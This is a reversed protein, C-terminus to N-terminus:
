LINGDNVHHPLNKAADTGGNTGGQGTTAAGKSKKDSVPPPNTDGGTAGIVTTGSVSVVVDDYSLVPSVKPKPRVSEIEAYNVTAVETKSLAIVGTLSVVGLESYIPQKAAVGVNTTTTVASEDINTQTYHSQNQFM